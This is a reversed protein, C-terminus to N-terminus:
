SKDNEVLAANHTLHDRLIARLIDLAEIMRVDILSYEICVGQRNARVIGAERLTKLHRSTAPQSLGVETALDNVMHPRESLVYIILIRHPDALASCLNAHLIAIEDALNPNNM